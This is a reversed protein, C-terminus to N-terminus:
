RLIATLYKKVQYPFTWGEPIMRYRVNSYGNNCVVCQIRIAIAEYFELCSLGNSDLSIGPVVVTQESYFLRGKMGM